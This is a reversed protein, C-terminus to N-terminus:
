YTPLDQKERISYSPYRNHVGELGPPLAFVYWMGMRVSVLPEMLPIGTNMRTKRRNRDGEEKARETLLARNRKFPLTEPIITNRGSNGPFLLWPSSHTKRNQNCLQHRREKTHSYLGRKERYFVDLGTAAHTAYYLNPKWPVVRFMSPTRTLIVTLGFMTSNYDLPVPGPSVSPDQRSISAM